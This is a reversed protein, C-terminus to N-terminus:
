SLRDPLRRAKNIWGNVMALAPLRGVLKRENNIHELQARLEEPSRRALDEVTCVGAEELLTTYIEGVGRIRALDARHLVPAIRQAETGIYEALDYISGHTRYAQLLAENDKIKRAKLKAELEPNVGPLKQIVVRM